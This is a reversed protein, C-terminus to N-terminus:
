TIIYIVPAIVCTAQFIASGFFVFCDRLGTEDIDNGLTLYIGLIPIWPYLKKSIM